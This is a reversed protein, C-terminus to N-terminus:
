LTPWVPNELQSVTAHSAPMDRLTQRYNLISQTRGSPFDPLVMPDSNRLKLNRTRRLCKLLRSKKEVTTEPIEEPFIEKNLIKWDGNIFFAEQTKLLKPVRVFTAAAPLLYVTEGEIETELPDIRADKSGCYKGNSDYSYYKM